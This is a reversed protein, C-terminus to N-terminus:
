TKSGSKRRPVLAIPAPVAEYRRGDFADAAAQVCRYLLTRVPLGSRVAELRFSERLGDRLVLRTPDDGAEPPRSVKATEDALHGCYQIILDELSLGLKDARGRLTEMWAEPMSLQVDELLGATSRLKLAPKKTNRKM